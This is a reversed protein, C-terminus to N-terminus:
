RYYDYPVLHIYGNSTIRKIVAVMEDGEELDDLTDVVGQTNPTVECLYGGKVPHAIRVISVEGAKVAPTTDAEKRSANVLVRGYEDQYKELIKVDIKEGKKFFKNPINYVRSTQSCNIYVEVDGLVEVFLGNKATSVIVGVYTEGVEIASKRENQYAKRSWEMDSIALVSFYEREKLKEIKNEVPDKFGLEEKPIFGRLKRNEGYIDLRAERANWILNEKQPYIKKVEM